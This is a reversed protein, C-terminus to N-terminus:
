IGTAGWLIDLTKVNFTAWQLQNQNMATWEETSAQSIEETLKEKILQPGNKEERCGYVNQQGQLKNQIRRSDSELSNVGSNLLHLTSVEIGFESCWITKGLIFSKVRSTGMGIGAGDWCYPSGMKYNCRSQRYWHWVVFWSCAKLSHREVLCKLPNWLGCIACLHLSMGTITILKWIVIRHTLFNLSINSTTYCFLQFYSHMCEVGLM